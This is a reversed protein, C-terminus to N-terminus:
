FMEGAARSANRLVWILCAIVHVQLLVKCCHQGTLQCETHLVHLLRQMANYLDVLMEKFESTSNSM